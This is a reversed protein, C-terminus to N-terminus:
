APRAPSVTLQRRHCLECGYQQDDRLRAVCQCVSINVTPNTSTDDFRVNEGDVYDIATVGDSNLVWNKPSALVNTSWVSSLSGSWRAVTVLTAVFDVSANATDNSLYGSIGAPLSGLQFAPFGTGQLAGDYTILPYAGTAPVSAVLNITVSGAGSQIKLGNANTVDLSASVALNLMSADSSVSGLTLKNVQLTGNATGGGAEIAGGKLVIVNTSNVIGNGGLTAGNSVTIAGGGASFNNIYLKGANIATTGSYTNTGALTLSASGNKILSLSPTLPGTAPATYETYWDVINGAFTNANNETM